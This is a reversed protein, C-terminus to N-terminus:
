RYDWSVLKGTFDGGQSMSDLVYANSVQHIPDIIPVTVARLGFVAYRAYAIEGGFGGPDIMDVRGGCGNGRQRSPLAQDLTAAEHPAVVHQDVTGGSTDADKGNLDSV